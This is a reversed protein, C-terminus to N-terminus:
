IKSIMIDNKEFYLNKLFLLLAYLKKNFESASEQTKSIMIDNKTKFDRKIKSIMIDFNFFANVHSLAYSIM